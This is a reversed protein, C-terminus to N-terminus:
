SGPEIFDPEGSPRLTVDASLFGDVPAGMEFGSVYADFEWGSGDPFTLVYADLSRDKWAKILGDTTGHSTDSANFVLPFTVEGTRKITMIFEEVGGPSSHNTIEQEDTSLQPGQIDQIQGIADSNRTLTTGLTAVATTM